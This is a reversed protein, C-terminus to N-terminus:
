GTAHWSVLRRRVGQPLLRTFFPLPDRWSFLRYVKPAELLSGLWRWLTMQRQRHAERWACRDLAFNLWRYRPRAPGGYPLEATRSTLWDYAIAPLNIGNVAGLLHWLNFRANIELLYFRGDRLDCKFDMKFVGCLGLREVIMHGLAVLEDEATLLELYSSEGTLAPYTRIKRGVFWALLRSSEDAFGHFSYIQRDDGPIYDQVLLETRLRTALPDALLAAANPYVRAKGRCQFLERFVASHEWAFKSTPKVLVPGPAHHVAPRGEGGEEWAYCQPVPLGLRQARRAFVIPDLLDLALDTRNLLFAFRETLRDRHRILFRLQDDTGYYLPLRRSGSAGLREAADLLLDSLEPEDWYAPLPLYGHCYRSYLAPSDPDSGAVITPIGALGLPRLLSLGGLLVAPPRDAAFNRCRSTFIRLGDNNM